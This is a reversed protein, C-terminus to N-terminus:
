IKKPFPEIRSIGLSIMMANEIERMEDDDCTGYLQGIREVAITSIQECLATSERGTGKVTVHTPLNRKTQTTLYVAEVTGSYRNNQENSVIVAPRGSRQESGIANGGPEIYYIEGRRYM